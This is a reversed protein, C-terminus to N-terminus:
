NNYYIKLTDNSMLYKNPEPFQKFETSKYVIYRIGESKLIIEIEELNVEAPVDDTLNTKKTNPNNFEYFVCQNKTTIRCRQRILLIGNVM